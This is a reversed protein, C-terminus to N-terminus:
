QKLGKAYESPSKGTVALFSRQLTRITYFGCREALEGIPIDPNEGILKLAHRIRLGKIYDPFSLGPEIQDLMASVEKKSVGLMLAASERNLNKNLYLQDKEILSALSPKSQKGPNSENQSSREAFIAVQRQLSRLGKELSETEERRRQERIRSTRLIIVTLIIFAVTLAVVTAIMKLRDKNFASITDILHLRSSEAEYKAAKLMTGENKEKEEIQKSLADYRAEYEMAKGVMGANAYAEKLRALQRKYIRSVTDSDQFPIEDRYLELLRDPEGAAAYYSTIRLLGNKTKAFSRSCAKDFASKAAKRDGVGLYYLSKDIDLYFRCRDIYDSNIDPYKDLIKNILGEFIKCEEFVSPYDKVELYDIILQGTFYILHGYEAESKAYSSAQLVAKRMMELGKDDEGIDFLCNGAMFDFSQELFPIDAKHAMEKGETCTALLSTYDKQHKLITVLHYLLDARLAPDNSEDLDLAKRLYRGADAYNDTYNYTLNALLLNADYPSIIGKIMGEETTHVAKGYDTRAISDITERSYLGSDSSVATNDKPSACSFVLVIALLLRYTRKM